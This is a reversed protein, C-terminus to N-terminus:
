GSREGDCMEMKFPMALKTMLQNWTLPDFVPYPFEIMGVYWEVDPHDFARHIRDLNRPANTWVGIFYIGGTFSSSPDSLPTPYTLSAAQLLRCNQARAGAALKEANQNLDDGHYFRCSGGSGKLCRTVINFVYDGYEVASIKGYYFLYLAHVYPSDAVCESEEDAPVGDAVANTAKTPDEDRSEKGRGFLWGLIGM